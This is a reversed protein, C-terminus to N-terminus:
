NGEAVGLAEDDMGNMERVIDFLRDVVLGSKEGLAKAEADSFIRNGEEDVIALVVLRSRINTLDQSQAFQAEFHDRDRASLSRLRLSGGWEPVEVDRSAFDDASLIQDKNLM